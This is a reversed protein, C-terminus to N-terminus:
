NIGAWLRIYYTTGDINVPISYASGGTFVTDNTKTGFKLVGPTGPGGTTKISLVEVNGLFSKNGGIEYQNTSQNVYGSLSAATAYTSALVHGGGGLLFYSDSSGSKILSTATVSSSATIAGTSAIRLREVAASGTENTAFILAQGNSGSTNLASIYSYRDSAIDTNANAAFALRIETNTTVSELPPFVRILVVVSLPV